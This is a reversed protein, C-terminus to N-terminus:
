AMGQRASLKKSLQSLSSTAAAIETSSGLYWDSIISLCEVADELAEINAPGTVVKLKGGNRLNAKARMWQSQEGGVFWLSHVVTNRFTEASMLAKRAYELNISPWEPNKRDDYLDCMLNLKQAYSMAATVRHIDEPARMQLLSALVEAVVNEILQFKVVIKGICIHLRDADIAIESNM